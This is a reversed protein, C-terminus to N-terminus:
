NKRYGFNFALYMQFFGQLNIDDGNPDEYFIPVEKYFLDYVIGAELSTVKKELLQYNFISGAKLYIGPHIKTEGIGHFFGAEGIIISGLHKSHNYREIKRPSFDSTPDEPVEIYIPKLLGFSFGGSLVYSIAVTGQDTKDFLIREYIYGTRLTFFSNVRDFVFGKVNSYSRDTQSNEKPHRLKTLEIELGRKNFADRFKLYRFDLGYGRTHGVLGFTYERDYIQRKWDASTELQALLLSPALGLIYILVNKVM